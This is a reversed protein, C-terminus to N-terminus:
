YSGLCVYPNFRTTGSERARLHKQIGNRTAQIFRSMEHADAFNRQEFRLFFDLARNNQMSTSEDKITQHVFKSLTSNFTDMVRWFKRSFTSDAKVKELFVAVMQRLATEDWIGQEVKRLNDVSIRELYYWSYLGMPAGNGSRLLNRAIRQDINFLSFFIMLVRKRFFELAGPGTIARVQADVQEYRPGQWATHLVDDFHDTRSMNKLLDFDILDIDDFSLMTADVLWDYNQIIRCYTPLDKQLVEQREIQPIYSPGVVSLQPSPASIYLPKLVLRETGRLLWVEHGTYQIDTYQQGDVSWKNCTPDYELICSKHKSYFNDAGERRFSVSRSQDHCQWEIRSRVGYRPNSVIWSEDKSWNQTM